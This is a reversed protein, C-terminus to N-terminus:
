HLTRKSQLGLQDFIEKLRELEEESHGDDEMIEEATVQESEKQKWYYDNMSPSAESMMLVDDASITFEQIDCVKHFVWPTFAVQVYGPRSAPLYVVKVPEILLYYVDDNEGTEIVESIIDDGNKLRLFKVTPNYDEEM